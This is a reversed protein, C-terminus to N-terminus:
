TFITGYVLWMMCVVCRAMCPLISLLSEGPQFLLPICFMDPEVDWEGRGVGGWETRKESEWNNGEILKEEKLNNEELNNAEFMKGRLRKEKLYNEREWGRWEGEGAKGRGM